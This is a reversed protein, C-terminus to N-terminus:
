EIAELPSIVSQNLEPPSEIWKIFGVRSFRPSLEQSRNADGSISVLFIYLPFMKIWTRGGSENRLPEEKMDDILGYFGQTRSIRVPFCDVVRIIQWVLPSLANRSMRIFPRVFLSPNVNGNFGLVWRPEKITDLDFRVEFVSEWLVASLPFRDVMMSLLRVLLESVVVYGEFSDRCDHHLLVLSPNLDQFLSSLHPKERLVLRLPLICHVPTLPEKPGQILRQFVRAPISDGSAM